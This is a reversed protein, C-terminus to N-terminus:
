AARHMFIGSTSCRVQEPDCLSGAEELECLFRFLFLLVPCLIERLEVHVAYRKGTGQVYKASRVFQAPVAGHRGAWFTEQRVVHVAHRDNQLLSRVCRFPNCVAGTSHLTCCLLHCLRYRVRNFFTQSM